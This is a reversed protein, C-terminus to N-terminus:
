FTNSKFQEMTPAITSTVTSVLYSSILDQIWFQASSISYTSVRRDAALEQDLKMTGTPLTVVVCPSWLLIGHAGIYIKKTNGSLCLFNHTIIRKSVLFFFEASNKSIAFYLINQNCISYQYLWKLVVKLYARTNTIFISTTERLSFCFM